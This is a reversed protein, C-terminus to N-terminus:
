EERDNDSFPEGVAARTARRHTFRRRLPTTILALLALAAAFPLLFGAVTVVGLVVNVFAAWGTKLGRLFGPIKDSPEGDSPAKPPTRLQVTITAHDVEARLALRLARLSELDAERQSLAAELRVIDELSGQGELLERLRDTSTRAAEIRADLDVVQQTVNESSESRELVTGLEQLEDLASRYQAPDVKLVLTVSPRSGLQSQESSVFGGHREVIDIAKIRAQDVQKTAIRLEATHIVHAGDREISDPDIDGAEAPTEALGGGDDGVAGDVTSARDDNGAACGGAFAVFMLAAVAGNRTARFRRPCTTRM